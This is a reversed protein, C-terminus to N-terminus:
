YCTAVPWDHRKTPRHDLLPYLWSNREIEHSENATELSVMSIGAIGLYKLHKWAQREKISATIPHEWPRGMTSSTRVVSPTLNLHPEATILMCTAYWTGSGCGSNACEFTEYVPWIQSWTTTVVGVGRSKDLPCSPFSSM